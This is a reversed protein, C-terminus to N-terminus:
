FLWVHSFVFFLIVFFPADDAFVATFGLALAFFDFGKSGFKEAQGCALIRQKGDAVGQGFRKSFAFSEGAVGEFAVHVVEGAQQVLVVEVGHAVGVFVDVVGVEVVAGFVLADLVFDRAEEGAVGVDDAFEVGAVVAEVDLVQALEGAFRLFLVGREGFCFAVVGGDTAALVLAFDQLVQFVQWEIDLLFYHNKVMMFRKYHYFLVM